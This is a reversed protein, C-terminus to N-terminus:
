ISDLKILNLFESRVAEERFVGELACTVMHSNQKAVGRMRMCFHTAQIVVAVGRPRLHEMLAQAIQTTLREQLQARRAFADVLRALKSLGVVNGDPIYAVHARGTFPLLHHSCMSYLEIDRCIVMQDADSSFRTELIKSIDADYGSFIENKWSKVVRKPTDHFNEDSLDAGTISLLDIVAQQALRNEDVQADTPKNEM